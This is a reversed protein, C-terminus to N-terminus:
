SGSDDSRCHRVTCKFIYGRGAHHRCQLPNCQMASSKMSSFGVQASAAGGVWIRGMDVEM